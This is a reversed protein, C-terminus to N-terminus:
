DLQSATGFYDSKKIGLKKMRYYLTSRKIGLLEATGGPGHLKWHTQKLAKLIMQREYATVTLGTKETSGSGSGVGLDPVIFHEGTSLIVGREIINELERVNGPWHYSLLKKTEGKKFEKFEKGMKDAYRRLFHSSLPMIDDEREQLPPMYIPFVNLRYYLDSRFKGERVAEEMGRNTAALLRFDSHITQNGGVREFEKTELVRLLRVQLDSSIEGIEDLFLTGGDALEFRGIHKDIAGTFAGKEHGFLESAILENALAGCNLSIFPKESRTSKGHIERAVVGKGVGTEGTILVTSETSAVKNILSLVNKMADSVVIFNGLHLSELHQVEYYQKEEALKRNLNQIDEYARANDLAIAAFSSLYSLVKQDEEQFTGGTVCNDHYLCGIIKSNSVLPLCLFSKITQNVAAGKQNVSEETFVQIEGTQMTKEIAKKSALFESSQTDELILNKAAWLEMEKIHPDKAILFIASRESGTIRCVTSFIMQVVELSNRGSMIRKGLDLIEEFRNDKVGVFDVMHKLDAPILDPDIPYLIRSAASIFETGKKEQGTQRCYAGLRLQTVAFEKHHGSTKLLELSQEFLQEVDEEKGKEDRQQEALFRKAVGLMFISNTRKAQKIQDELTCDFVHPYSGEDMANALELMFSNFYLSFQNKHSLEISEKLCKVSRDVFGKKFYCYALYLLIQYRVFSNGEATATLTQTLDQIARDFDHTIVFTLGLFSSVLAYTDDNTTVKSHTRLANLLGRGQSVQGQYCYALGLFIGALLPIRHQPFEGAFIPESKEYLCIIDQFRGRLYYNLMIFITASQKWEPEEIEPVLKIGRDFYIKATDYQEKFWKYVALHILVVAEFSHLDRKELLELAKELLFSLRDFNYTIPPDKTYSLATQIFLTDGELSDMKDLDHIVKDYYRKAAGTPGHERCYDGIQKLRLCEDLNNQFRMQQEAVAIKTTHDDDYEQWLRNAILRYLSVRRLIPISDAIAQKSKQDTFVYRDVGKKKLVGKQCYVELQKLVKSPKLNSLALIWDVSFDEGFCVAHLLLQKGDESNSHSHNTQKM